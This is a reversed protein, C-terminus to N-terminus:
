FVDRRFFTHDVFGSPTWRTLEGVLYQIVVLYKYTIGLYAQSKKSIARFDPSVQACRLTEGSKRRNGFIGLMDQPDYRSDEGLPVSQHPSDDYM